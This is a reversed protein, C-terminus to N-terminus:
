KQCKICWYSSRQAQVGHHIPHGCTFCPEGTRDYVKFHHQFYGADGSSRVYDRLTSGGSTIAAELVEKVCEVLRNCQKISLSSAVTAPHIGASFLAEAAYINGVGVVIEQQMITPKIASYRKALAAHLVKGTWEKSLPEPGLRALLPHTSLQNTEHLLFLGFRRPDQYILIHGHEMKLVIHDHKEHSKPWSEKALWRGSMGLHSIITQQNDLGILLYKARRELAEVRANVLMQTANEPMPQRLDARRFLAREIRKGVMLPALGRGVTEVEPLEPM